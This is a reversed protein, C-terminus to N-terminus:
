DRVKFTGIEYVDTYHNLIEALEDLSNANQVETKYSVYDYDNGLNDDITGYYVKVEELDSFAIEKDFSNRLEKM